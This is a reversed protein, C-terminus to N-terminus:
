SNRQLAAVSREQFDNRCPGSYREGRGSRVPSGLQRERQASEIQTTFRHLNKNVAM